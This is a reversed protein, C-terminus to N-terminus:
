RARKAGLTLLLGNIENWMGHYGTEVNQPNHGFFIMTADASALATAPTIRRSWSIKSTKVLARRPAASERAPGTHSEIVHQGYALTWMWARHETPTDTKAIRGVVEGELGIVDYDDLSEFPERGRFLQGTRNQARHGEM